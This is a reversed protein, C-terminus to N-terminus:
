RTWERMFRFFTGALGGLATLVLMGPADDLGDAGDEGGDFLTWAVLAALVLVAGAIAYAPVSTASLAVLARDIVITPVLLALGILPTYVLPASLVAWAEGVFGDRAWLVVFLGLVLTFITGLYALLWHLVAPM